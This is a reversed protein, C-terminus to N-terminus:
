KNYEHYIELFESILFFSGTVLILDNKGSFELAKKYADQLKQMPMFKSKNKASKYLVEPEEARPYLPRTLIIKAKLKSLITLGKKYDKDKMMAFIVVLKNYKFYKLNASINELAQENHSVDIVIKPSTRILEFRGHFNSNDKINSLGKQIEEYTFNVGNAKSLAEIATFSTRLNILQYDGIFPFSYKTKNFEFQLGTENKKIVKIRKKSSDILDSKTVKSKKRIQSLAAKELKGIVVPINKKVIGAKEYAIKSITNGLFDHHDHAISTIVSLEPKLVNTSDLRGGLGTEIVAYEVKKRSFYEFAMATTVEFFSPEIKKILPNIRNTFDIVFKKSIMEGNVIMRERFDLIHPSTYLGTKFGKEILISNLISSVSGKGNTGAIHISKFNKEPNGLFKLLKKINNLNYKIGRRELAFLYQTTKKYDTFLIQM